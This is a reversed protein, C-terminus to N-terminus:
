PKDNDDDKRKQTVSEVAKYIILLAPAGVWGIVRELVELSPATNGKLVSLIVIVATAAALCLWVLVVMIFIFDFVSIGVKGNKETM